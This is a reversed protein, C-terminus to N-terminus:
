LVSSSVVSKRSVYKYKNIHSEERNGQLCKAIQFILMFIKLRM